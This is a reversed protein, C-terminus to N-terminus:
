RIFFIGIGVFRAIYNPRRAKLTDQHTLYWDEGSSTTLNIEFINLVFRILFILTVLSYIYVAINLFQYFTFTFHKSLAEFSPELFITM